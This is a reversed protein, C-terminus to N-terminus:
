APSRFYRRTIAVIRWRQDYGFYYWLDNTDVDGDLDTDQHVGIRYGLGNYTYESM